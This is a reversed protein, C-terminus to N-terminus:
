YKLRVGLFTYRVEERFDGNSYYYKWTEIKNGDSMKGVGSLKGNPHYFKWKGEHKGNKFSGKTELTGDSFFSEWEKVQLGDLYEGRIKVEGNEYFGVFIGIFKKNSFEYSYELQNKPNDFYSKWRGIKENSLYKGEIKLNHNAYYEQYKGNKEGNKVEQQYYIKGDGGRLTIIGNAPKDTSRDFILGNNKYIQHYPIENRFFGIIQNKYNSVNKIQKFINNEELDLVSNAQSLESIAEERTLWNDKNELLEQEVTKKAIVKESTSTKSPKDTDEVFHGM